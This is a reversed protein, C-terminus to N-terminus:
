LTLARELVVAMEARTMNSRPNLMGEPTGTIIGYYVMTAMADRAYASVQAGDRFGDLLSQDGSGLSWGVAQMTRKLLVMADQRNIPDKPHFGGDPYGTAIGVGQAVRIARGYYSDQPVDYFGDGEVAPLPFARYLMLMFDGRTIQGAPQYTGSGVGTVIGDQFLSDVAGVAWAYGDMDTFYRSGSSGPVTIRIQGQYVNGLSDKGLYTLRTTGQFGSRAVFTVESISPSSSPYYVTNETVQGSSSGLGEYRYYLRGGDSSPSDFTVSVLSGLGRDRCARVFDDSRFSVTGGSTTYSIVTPSAPSAVLIRVQGEFKDGGTSWGTFPITVTGSFNKNAEFRVKELYPSQTFYYNTSSSVKNSSSSSSQYYLTGSSSSPLTTFRVYNLNRGTMHQSIQNFDADNFIVGGGSTVQYNVQSSGTEVGIEVTGEMKVGATNWATYPISVTGIFGSKPVFTVRDLYPSSSRYYNKGSSVKSDYSGSSTYNYYLTGKSSSPLEFRVYSLTGGTIEKCVSNFDEDDFTVKGNSYASYRVSGRGIKGVAIEVKGTFRNGNIDWATFEVAATGWYSSNAVFTVRRLYPSSTRYYSSGAAVRSDYSGSSTYNYYLTGVSSAPLTFRVYDLSYGTVQRSLNNFDTDSFTLKGGQSISYNLDGQLDAANIKIKVRGRFSSGNVDYATYPVIVEGKYNGGPVFYVNSLSPTGNRRYQKASDVKTGPQQASIYQYYLGGAQNDPQSFVVSDLDRGKYVKCLRNFDDAVFQVPQNGKTSYYIEEWEGVRVEITGQFFTSGDAYGTYNIVATGSFDDKPVFTVDSLDMQGLSPSLYYREGTGVGFGTDGQNQYRYYLTGQRTSVTLGSVHSLSRGLVNQCQTSIASEVQSFELPQGAEVSRSIVQATNRKVTVECKAMYTTNVVKATITSTGEKKPMLYGQSVAVVNTNSSTWEVNRGLQDGFIDYRLTYNEGEFLTIASDKLVIGQVVVTASAVQTASASTATIQTKGAKLGTVVVTTLKDSSSLSAINPDLTAWTVEQPATTPSVTAQLTATKGPAVEVTDPSIKVGAPDSPSVTIKCAMPKLSQDGITVTVEVVAEKDETTEGTRNATVVADFSNEKRKVEIRNGDGAKVKWEITGKDAQFADWDMVTSTGGDTTKKSVTVSLTATGGEKMRLSTNDLSATYTVKGAGPEKGADEGEAMAPPMLSFLMLAALLFGTLRRRFNNTGVMM